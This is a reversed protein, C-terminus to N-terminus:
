LLMLKHGQNKPKQRLVLQLFSISIKSTGWRITRAEVSLCKSECIRISTRSRNKGNNRSRKKTRYCFAIPAEEARQLKEFVKKFFVDKDKTAIIKRKLRVYAYEHVEIQNPEFISQLFDPVCPDYRTDADTVLTLRANQMITRLMQSNRALKENRNTAICCMNACLSRAEDLIVVDWKHNGILLLKHLSEYQIILKKSKLYDEEPKVLKDKIKQQLEKWQKVSHTGYKYHVFGLKAYNKRQTFSLSRRTTVLLQYEDDCNEIFETSATTKGAGMGADVTFCRTSPLPKFLSGPEDCKKTEDYQFMKVGDKWFKHEEVDGIFEGRPINTIKGDPNRYRIERTAIDGIDKDKCCQSNYSVKGQSGVLVQASKYPLNKKCHACVPGCYKFVYPNTTYKLEFEVDAYTSALLTQVEEMLGM